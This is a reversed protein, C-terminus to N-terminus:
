ETRSGETESEIEKNVRGDKDYMDGDVDRVIDFEKLGPYGRFGYGEVVDGDRTFKVYDETQIRGKQQVWILSETELLYGERSKVVVNGIATLDRTKQDIEGKDATVVSTIEGEEDYFYIVPNDTVLLDRSSYVRAVPATIKWKAKGSDSEITTFDNIVQDCIEPEDISYDQDSRDCCVLLLSILVAAGAILENRFSIRMM